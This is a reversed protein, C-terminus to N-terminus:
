GQLIVLSMWIGKLNFPLKEWSDGYDATHWVDGYGLGAYLHGPAGPLSVLTTPMESMPHPEWGIPEWDTGNGAPMAENRPSSSRYLYVEAKERFSKGPSPAVSVYWIDPREPDSGCAVGYNKALGQKKKRWTRGGDTSFTAGGGSGGAEYAWDGNNSHFKLTHCDRLTGKLHKSWTQGGDDSRVVSGLEIGALIVDPDRPSISIAQVYAQFSGPDAPSFMWWRRIKRFQELEAWTQGGDRTVFMSIPRCGAYVTRADHPSVGLAKVTKGELGAPQWTKGFDDSRWVGDGTAGAYVTQEEGPAAALCSVELAPLLTDVRWGTEAEYWARSIGKGPTSLFVKGTNM